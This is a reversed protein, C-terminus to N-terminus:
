EDQYSQWLWRATMWSVQTLFPRQIKSVFCRSLSISRRYKPLVTWMFSRTLPVTGVNLCASFIQNVPATAHIPSLQRIELYFRSNRVHPAYRSNCLPLGTAPWRAPQWCEWTLESQSSAAESWQPHRLFYYRIELVLLGTGHKSYWLILSTCDSYGTVVGTTVIHVVYRLM